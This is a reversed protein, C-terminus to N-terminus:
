RRVRVTTTTTVQVDTRRGRAVLLLFLVLVVLLLVALAPATMTDVVWWGLALLLSLGAGLAFPLPHLRRPRRIPRVLLEYDRGNWRPAPWLAAATGRRERRELEALLISRRPATLLEIRNNLPEAHLVLGPNMRAIRDNM